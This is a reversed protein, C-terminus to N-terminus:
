AYAEAAAWARQSETAVFDNCIAGGADSALDCLAKAWFSDAHGFVKKSKAGAVASELEIKPADFKVGSATAERKISMLEKRIDNDRPIRSKAKEFNQKIRIALDTKLRVGKDNTGAFNIGMVRGSCSQNLYDYLAIGMGTSDIATRNTMRVWPELIKHQQPFPVGHLRLVMRTWAVDGIVEDLWLVTTDRERAVDIGAYLPGIAKYGSPWEMTAGDHECLAILELPIWAGTAKLFVCLFEQSFMEDDRFLDRMEEVNIPCGERIAKYVDVWHISWSGRRIVDGPDVGDAVGFEKCLDYYKGMEGNPTSLSRLLHGLAVQRAVAAFIAYSNEHHAHEDLIANGPYGRATRPNAPLAIIRSDLIQIRSQTISSLGDIDAFPEEYLQGVAGIAQLNKQALEVFENSQAKSASLVTWTTGGDAKEICDLLAEIALAL